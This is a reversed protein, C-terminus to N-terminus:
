NQICRLPIAYKKAFTSEKVAELGDDYLGLATVSVWDNNENSSWFYAYERIYFFNGKVKNRYGAPLATFGAENTAINTYWLSSKAKLKTGTYAAEMATDTLKVWERGSPIHWGSPCIGQRPLTGFWGTVDYESALAMAAAWQYLRGYTACNSAEGAYCWSSDVKFNLNQAMWTQTKIKVTRYTQGDRSDKLYGYVISPNFNTDLVRVIGTMKLISLTDRLRVKGNWSYLLTDQLGTVRAAGMSTGSGASAAGQGRGAVDRGDFRVHLRGEELMLRGSAVPMAQRVQVGTPTSSLSWLGAADTTASQGALALKVTVGPMPKGDKDLVTGSLAVEAAAVPLSLALLAACLGALGLRSSKM